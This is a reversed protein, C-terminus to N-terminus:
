VLVREADQMRQLPEACLASVLQNQEKGVVLLEDVSEPGSNQASDNGNWDRGTNAVLM